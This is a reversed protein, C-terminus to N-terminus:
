FVFSRLIGIHRINIGERHVAETISFNAVLGNHSQKHRRFIKFLFFNECLFFFSKM